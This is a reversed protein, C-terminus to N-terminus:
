AAPGQGMQFLNSIQGLSFLHAYIMGLMGNQVAKRSQDGRLERLKNEDVMRFGRYVAPDRGEIQITVEGDIVINLEDLETMFQRTRMVAQEFQDCFSLANKTVETPQDGDFLMEGIGPAFLGSADDFCLSLEETNENLKALIFPYRRVYAPVYKGPAWQGDPGIFLNRGDAMGVLALPAAGPGAGFVVPYDRQAIVFEDVTLPIAHSHRAFELNAPPTFGWNPHLQSSLPVVSGYFLPLQQAPAQSAM